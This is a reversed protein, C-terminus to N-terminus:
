LTGLVKSGSGLGTGLAAWHVKGKAMRVCVVRFVGLFM